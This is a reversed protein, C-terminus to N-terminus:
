EEQLNKFVERFRFYEVLRLGTWRGLMADIVITFLILEPYALILSQLWPWQVIFVCLLAALITEGTGLIASYLGEETKVNLFSESLTSMILLVFITDRALIINFLAGLGLLMLLTISVVTIVIAVKPIYLLRWRRMFARTAYGTTIIFLLFVLGIPWGLALFSLAVISPTYLGFTTVGIVQKLFALIMAIVPLMLLLIVTQSSVGHTLMYNVLSSLLNWPRIGATSADVILYDNDRKDLEEVFQEISESSILPNIAVRRTVLIQSPRLVSFPGRATRGLTQLSRDSILVISQNKISQMRATDQELARMLAQLGTIGETWLVIAEAGNLASSQEQILKVLAEETGLPAGAIEPQLLRLFVGEEAATQQHIQLKEMPISSDAILVIKREYVTISKQIEAEVIEGDITTRIVLRIVTIGPKEPTYVAEVTRSISQPLSDRYWRYSVDEEIGVSASADLVLTRGVAIDTPGSIIPTLPAKEELTEGTAAIAPLAIGCAVSVSGIIAIFRKM